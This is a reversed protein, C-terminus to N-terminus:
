RTTEKEIAAGELQPCRGSAPSVGAHREAGFAVSAHREAFRFASQMTAPATSV